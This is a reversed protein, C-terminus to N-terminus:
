MKNKVIDSCGLIDLVGQLWCESISSNSLSNLKSGAEACVPDQVHGVHFAAAAASRQHQRHGGTGVCGHASAAARSLCDNQVQM